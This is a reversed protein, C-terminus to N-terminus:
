ADGGEEDFADGPEDGSRDSPADGGRGDNMSPPVSARLRPLGLQALATGAEAMFMEPWSACLFEFSTRADRVLEALRSNEAAYASVDFHTTPRAGYMVRQVLKVAGDDAIFDIVPVFRPASSLAAGYTEALAIVVALELRSPKIPLLPVADGHATLWAAAARRKLTIAAEVALVVQAVAATPAEAPWRHSDDHDHHRDLPRRFDRAERRAREGRENFDDDDAASDLAM